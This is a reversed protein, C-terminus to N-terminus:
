SQNRHQRVRDRNLIYVMIEFVLLLGAFTLRGGLVVADVIQRRTDTDEIFAVGVVLGTFVAIKAADWATKCIM